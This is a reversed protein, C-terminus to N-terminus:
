WNQHSSHRVLRDVCELVHTFFFSLYTRSYKTIVYSCYSDDPQLLQACKCVCLLVNDLAADDAGTPLCVGLLLLLGIM